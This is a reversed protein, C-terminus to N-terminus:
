QQGDVEKVEYDLYDIFKRMSGCIVRAETDNIVRKKPELGPIKAAITELTMSPTNRDYKKMEAKINSTIAVERDLGAKRKIEHIFPVTKNRLCYDLMDKFEPPIGSSIWRNNELQTMFKTDPMVSQNEKYSKVICHRLFGILEFSREEQTEQVITQEAILDLWEPLEDRGAAKYFEKLILTAPDYWSYSSYGTALEPHRIIYSAAFDGYVSLREKRSKGVVPDVENMWAEYRIKEENSWKESELFQIAFFRRRAAGDNPPPSNSTWPFAALALIDDNFRSRIYRNQVAYKQMELLTNSGGYKDDDNFM